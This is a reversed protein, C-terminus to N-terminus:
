AGPYRPLLPVIPLNPAAGSESPQTDANRPGDPRSFFRTFPEDPKSEAIALEPLVGGALMVAPNVPGPMAAAQAMSSLVWPSVMVTVSRDATPAQTVQAPGPQSTKWWGSVLWGTMFFLVCAAVAAASQFRRIGAYWGSRRGPPRVDEFQADLSSLIRDRLGAPVEVPAPRTLLVLLNGWERRCRECRHVHQELEDATEAVLQRDLWPDMLRDVDRCDM